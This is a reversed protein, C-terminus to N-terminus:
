GRKGSRGKPGGGLTEAVVAQLRDIRLRVAATDSQAGYGAANWADRYRFPRGWVGMSSGWDTVRYQLEPGPREFVATNPGPDGADKNDWNSTLMVLIKLGNLERTGLFPNAFWSWRV